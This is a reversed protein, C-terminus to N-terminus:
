VVLGSDQVLELCEEFTHRYTFEFIEYDSIKFNQIHFASSSSTHVYIYINYIGHKYISLDFDLWCFHWFTHTYTSM